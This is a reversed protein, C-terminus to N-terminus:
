VLLRAGEDTLTLTLRRRDLPDPSREVLARAVLGDVVATVSPPRVALQQALVSAATSGDALLALVRYQPMSLDLPTIAREVQRALRAITRGAPGPDPGAGMKTM